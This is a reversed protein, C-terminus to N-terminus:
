RTIEIHKKFHEDDTDPFDSRYHVGRSERRQEAMRALGQADLPDTKARKGRSEQFRRARWPNVSMAECGPTEALVLLLQVHFRSTPELVTRSPLGTKTIKKVLRNIGAKTNPFSQSCTFQGDLRIALDLSEKSVDVGAYVCDAPM